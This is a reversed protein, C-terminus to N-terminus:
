VHTHFTAVTADRRIDGAPPVTSSLSAGCGSELSVALLAM